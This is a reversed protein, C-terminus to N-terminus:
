ATSEGERMTRSTFRGTRGRRSDSRGTCRAIRSSRTRAAARRLRGRVDRVDGSAQGNSMPQFVVRYGAQPEPARNWSGHFAIFVGDRYKAPLANGTYFLVSMPAWHGPYVAVPAKKTRAAIRRRGTAVTSRRRRRAEERGDLLLLVALRLRRGSEGAAAGRGSERGLIAHDPLGEALQRAASRPRAAHRVARRREPSHGHGIGNRIGTAFRAGPTFSQGTKNADFKWSAPARTRAGHVPRQGAVREHPGEGSLQEHGLRRQRVARWRQRHRHQARSARAQASHGPRHGRARREARARRRRAQLSRHQKGEDVYLYGNALAVGTNGVTASTSSSTRRGDRTTDRLAVFSAPQAGAGTQDEPAAANRRADHVRRREVRRRRPPRPRRQRRLRTACIGAPLTLGANDGACKAPRPTPSPRRASASQRCSAKRRLQLRRSRPWYSARVALAHVFSRTTRSVCVHRTRPTPHSPLRFTPAIFPGPSATARVHHDSAAGGRVPHRNGDVREGPALQGLKKPTLRPGLGPTM